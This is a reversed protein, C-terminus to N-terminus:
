VGQQGQQVLSDAGPAGRAAGEQTQREGAKIRGSLLAETVQERGGIIGRKACTM